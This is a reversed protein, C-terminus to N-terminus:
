NNYNIQKHYQFKPQLRTEPQNQNQPQYNPVNTPQNTQPGMTPSLEKRFRYQREAPTIKFMQRRRSLNMIAIAKLQQENIQGVARVTDGVEVKNKPFHTQADYEISYRKNDQTNLVMKTESKEIIEGIVFGLETSKPSYVLPLQKRLYNALVPHSQFLYAGAAFLGIIFALIIVLPKKYSFDYKRLLWSLFIFLSIFGILWLYPFTQLFIKVGRYPGAVTILDQNARTWYILWSLILTLLLGALILGSGLGLKEALINLGSKMKVQGKEIKAMIQQNLNLKNQKSM